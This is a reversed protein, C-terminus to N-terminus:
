PNICKTHVDVHNPQRIYNVYLKEKNVIRNQFKSWENQNYKNTKFISLCDSRKDL